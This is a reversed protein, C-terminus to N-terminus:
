FFFSFFIPSFSPFFVVLTCERPSITIPLTTEFYGSLTEKVQNLESRHSGRSGALSNSM